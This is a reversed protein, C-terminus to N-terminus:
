AKSYAKAIKGSPLKVLRSVLEGSHERKRLYASASSYCVGIQDVIMQATVEDESIEPTILDRKAEEILRNELAQTIEESISM